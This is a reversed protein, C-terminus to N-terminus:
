RQLHMGVLVSTAVFAFGAADVLAAEAFVLGAASTGLGATAVSCPKHVGFGPWVSQLVTMLRSSSSRKM